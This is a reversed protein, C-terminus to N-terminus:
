LVVAVTFGVHFLKVEAWIIKRVCSVFDQSMANVLRNSTQEVASHFEPRAAIRQGLFM